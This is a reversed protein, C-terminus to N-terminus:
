APGGARPRARPASNSTSRMFVVRTRRGRILRLQQGLSPHNWTSRAAPSEPMRAVGRGGLVRAPTQPAALRHGDRTFASRAFDSAPAWRVPRRSASTLGGTSHATPRAHAAGLPAPARNRALVRASHSSPLVECGLQEVHFPIRGWRRYARRAAGRARPDSNPHAVLRRYALGVGGAFVHHSGTCIGRALAEGSHHRTM